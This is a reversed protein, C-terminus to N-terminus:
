FNFNDISDHYFATIYAKCSPSRLRTIEVDEGIIASHNITCMRSPNNQGQALFGMFRCHLKGDKGLWLPCTNWSIDKFEIGLTEWKSTGMYDNIVTVVYGNDITAVARDFVEELVKTDISIFDSLNISYSEGYLVPKEIDFEEDKNNIVTWRDDYEEIEKLYSEPETRMLPLPVPEEVTNNDYLILYNVDTTKDLNYYDISIFLCKDKVQYLSYIRNNYEAGIREGSSYAEVIQKYTHDCKITGSKKFKVLYTLKHKGRIEVLPRKHEGDQIIEFSDNSLRVGGCPALTWTEQAM